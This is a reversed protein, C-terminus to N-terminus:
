PRSRGGRETWPIEPDSEWWTCNERAVAVTVGNRNTKRVILTTRRGALLAAPEAVAPLGVRDEVFESHQFAWVCKRIDESSIFRLPINLDRAAELLGPENSKVDASALVRVDSLNLRADRLTGQVAKVIPEPLSGRRCGIGVVLTRVAETSTTIVPESFLINSVTVALSNAGGEHGSLLSICWRGGVDVVVVAPDVTKHKLWPSLARVVVGCPAIYVIGSCSSFVAGTLEIIRSFPEWEGGPCVEEHAYMGQLPLRAALRRGLLVGQSSLTILATSM